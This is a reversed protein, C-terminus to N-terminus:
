RSNLWETCETIDLLDRPCTDKVDFGEHDDHSEEQKLRSTTPGSWM